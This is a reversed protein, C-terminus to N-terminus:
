PKAKPIPQGFGANPLGNENAYKVAEALLDIIDMDVRTVNIPRDNGLTNDAADIGIQAAWRHHGDVIYNDGTVLMSGGAHPNGGGKMWKVM